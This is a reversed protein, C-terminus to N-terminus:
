PTKMAAQQWPPRSTAARKKGRSGFTQTPLKGVCIAQIRDRKTEDSGLKPGVRLGDFTGLLIVRHVEESYASAADQGSASAAGPGSAGIDDTGVTLKTVQNPSIKAVFKSAGEVCVTANVLSYPSRNDITVQYGAGNRSPTITLWNSTDIIQEIDMEKFQLNHVDLDPVHIQGDDVADIRAVPARPGYYNDDHSGISDINELKLDYRGGAPFFMNVSGKFLGDPKGEALILTGQSSSVLKGLYLQSALSLLVGAFLVSIVPTTFWMWESRRMRRLVLFNIPAVLLLYVFVLLGVKSPDPPKYDFPDNEDPTSPGGPGYGGYSSVTYSYGSQGYPNNTDQGLLSSAQGQHQIFGALYAGRGSWQQAPGELLDYPFVVVQGLGVPLHIAGNSDVFSGEVRDGVQLGVVGHFGTGGSGKVHVGQTASHANRLPMLGAFRVDRFVPASEGGNFILLGGGEVYLGLAAVTADSLREAGSALIVASLKRFAALRGVTEEPRCSLATFQRYSSGELKEKNIFQISGVDDGIELVSSGWASGYQAPLRYEISGRNTDLTCTVDDWPSNSVPFGVLKKQAGRPLEIQYRMSGGSASLTVAGVADPGQNEVNIVLGNAATQGLYLPRAVVVLGNGAACASGLSAGVLSLSAAIRICAARSNLPRIIVDPWM